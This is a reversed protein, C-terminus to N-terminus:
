KSLGHPQLGPGRNRALCGKRKGIEVWTKGGFCWEAGALSLKRDCCSARRGERSAKGRLRSQREGRHRQGTKEKGGNPQAEKSSRRAGRKLRRADPWLEFITIKGDVRNDDGQVALPWDHRLKDSRKVCDIVRPSFEVYLEYDFLVIM